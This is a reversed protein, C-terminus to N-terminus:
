RACIENASGRWWHSPLTPRSAPLLGSAWTDRQPGWQRAWRVASLSPYESRDPTIWNKM